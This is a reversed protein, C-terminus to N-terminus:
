FTDFDINEYIFKTWNNAVTWTVLFAPPSDVSYAPPIQM